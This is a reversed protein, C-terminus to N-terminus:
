VPLVPLSNYELLARAAAKALCVAGAVTPVDEAERMLTASLAPVQIQWLGLSIDSFHPDRSAAIREFPVNQLVKQFVAQTLFQAYYQQHSCRGNLYQTRTILTRPAPLTTPPIKM